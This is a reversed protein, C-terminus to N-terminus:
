FLIRKVLLREFELNDEKTIKSGARVMFLNAPHCAIDPDDTWRNQFGCSGFFKLLMLRYDQLDLGTGQLDWHWHYETSIIIRDELVGQGFLTKLLQRGIGQGRWARSVEIAGLELIKPHGKWRGREDPPHITVYGIVSGAHTAIFVLGDAMSAVRQLAKKQEPAERFVNLGTDFKMTRLFREDMPGGIFVPGKGTSIFHSAIAKSCPISM